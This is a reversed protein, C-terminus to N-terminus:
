WTEFDKVQEASLQHKPPMQLDVNGYKIAEILVSKEPAGPVVAQKGSSGAKRIADRSDVALDGKTKGAAASHCKYCQEVLVPRIKSEFFTVGAEPAGSALASACLLTLSFVGAFLRTAPFDARCKM